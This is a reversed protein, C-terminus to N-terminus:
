IMVKKGCVAFFGAVELKGKVLATKAFHFFQWFPVKSVRYSILFFFNPWFIKKLANHFHCKILIDMFDVLDM